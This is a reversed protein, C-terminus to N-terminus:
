DEEEVEIGLPCERNLFFIVKRTLIDIVCVEKIM